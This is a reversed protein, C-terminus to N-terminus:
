LNTNQVKKIASAVVNEMLAAVTVPGVGGPTPTIFSSKQSVSDYDVDGMITGDVELTGADIVVVGSKVDDGTVIGPKGVATIIVDANELISIMDDPHTNITIVDLDLNQKQLLYTIPKGVLKGQGVIAINKDKLQVGSQKLIKMVALATPMVFTDEGSYFLGDYVSSLGDVDLEIPISNLVKQTDIHGPLPLQVIIGCMNPRTSLEKIKNIIDETQVSEDLNAEVFKIGVSEAIKQKMKVYRLSVGGGILIDSFEPVFPLTAVKEKLGNIIEKSYERGNFVM